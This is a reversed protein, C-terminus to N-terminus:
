VGRESSRRRHINKPRHENKDEKYPNEARERMELHIMVGGAEAEKDLYGEAWAEAVTDLLQTNEATLREIETLLIPLSNRTAVLLDIDPKRAYGACGCEDSCEVWECIEDYSTDVEFVEEEGAYIQTSFVTRWPAPSAARDLERLHNITEQINTKM